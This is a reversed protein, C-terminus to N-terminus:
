APELLDWTLLIQLIQGDESPLEIGDTNTRDSHLNDIHVGAASPYVVIDQKRIRKGDTHESRPFLNGRYPVSDIRDFVAIKDYIKNSEEM